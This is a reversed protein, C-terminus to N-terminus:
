SSPKSFILKLTKLIILFDLVFSRNKIYFFDYRLKEQTDKLSSAYRYNVQAWGTVGPKVLHRLQYYPIKEKLKEVFEPREPRPGVFSLEGKLINILQPLEDLHSVRLIKGVRTIRPDNEKAWQPGFKEAEKIMTRFKYLTFIQNNKGVRKQQYIVPGKSDLKIALAILVFLPFLFVLLVFAALFELPRKTAEYASKDQSLISALWLEEIKELPIKFLFKECASLSDEIEIGQSIQSLLIRLIKRGGKPPAIIIAQIQYQNIIERIKESSPLKKERLYFALRYGVQPYKKFYDALENNEQSQGVLLLNKQHTVLNKEFFWRWLLSFIFFFFSFIVLNRKPSIVFSPVLYFLALSAVLSTLVGAALNEVLLYGRKLFRIEYLGVIYFVAIWFLFAVSFPWLHAEKLQPTIKGYRVLLTLALSLYLGVIDGALLLVQKIKNM